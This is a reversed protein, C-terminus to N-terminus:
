ANDREAQGLRSWRWTCSINVIRKGSLTQVSVPRMGSVEPWLSRFSGGTPPHAANEPESGGSAREPSLSVEKEQEREDERESRM